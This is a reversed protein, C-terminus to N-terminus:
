LLIFFSSYIEAIKVNKYNIKFERKLIIDIELIKCQHKRLVLGNTLQIVYELAAQLRQRKPIWCTERKKVPCFMTSKMQVSFLRYGGAHVRNVRLCPPSSPYGGSDRCRGGRRSATTINLNRVLWVCRDTTGRRTRCERSRLSASKPSHAQPRERESAEEITGSDWFCRTHIDGRGTAAPPKARSFETTGLNGPERRWRDERAPERSAVALGRKENEKKKRGSRERAIYGM